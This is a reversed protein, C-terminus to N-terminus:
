ETGGKLDGNGLETTSTNFNDVLANRLKQSSGIAGVAIVVTLILYEAIGGRTDRVWPSASWKEFRSKM